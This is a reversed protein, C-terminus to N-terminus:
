KLKFSNNNNTQSVLEADAQKLLLNYEAKIDISEVRTISAGGYLWINFSQRLIEQKSRRM